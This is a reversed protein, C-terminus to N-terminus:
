LYLDHLKENSILANRLVDGVDAPTLDVGTSMFRRPVVSVKVNQVDTPMKLSRRKFEHPIKRKSNEGNNEQM